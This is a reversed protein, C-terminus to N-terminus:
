LIKIKVSLLNAALDLFSGQLIAIQNERCPGQIFETLTDFCQLMPEFFASHRTQMYANLLDSMDVLLDYSHYSNYQQRIYNQLDSFHGEAFLQLLRLISSMEENMKENSTIDELESFKKLFHIEQLFREHLKLFFLESSNHTIFHKFISKQVQENGGDLLTIAFQIMREFLEDSISIEPNSLKSLIM